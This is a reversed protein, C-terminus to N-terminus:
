RWNEMMMQPRSEIVARRQSLVVMTLAKPNVKPTTLAPNLAVQHLEVLVALQIRRRDNRKDVAAGLAELAIGAHNQRMVRRADLASEIEIRWLYAVPGLKPGIDESCARSNVCSSYCM